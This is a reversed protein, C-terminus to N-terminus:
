FANPHICKPFVLYSHSVQVRCAQRFSRGGLWSPLSLWSPKAFKSDLRLYGTAGFNSVLTARTLYQNLLRSKRQREINRVLNEVSTTKQVSMSFEINHILMRSPMFEKFGSKNTQSCIIM